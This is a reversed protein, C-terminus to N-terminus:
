AWEQALQLATGDYHNIDLGANGAIIGPVNHPPNGAGDGTYQWLWYKSFWKPLTPARGSRTYHCLWLRHALMYDLNIGRLKGISEKLWNGSYIACPRGIKDELERMFYIAATIGMNGHRGFNEEYDLVMLTNADPAAKTVFAAVQATVPDGSCFHYAGWLMGAKAAAQRRAAYTKDTSYTGESAKHIVGRIGFEWAPKFDIDAPRKSNTGTNHHSIDIVLPNIKV